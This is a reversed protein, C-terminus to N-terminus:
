KVYARFRIRQGFFDDDFEEQATFGVKELLKAAWESDVRSYAFIRDKSYKKKAYEVMSDLTEVAYGKGRYADMLMMSIKIERKSNLKLSVTGILKNESKLVIGYRHPFHGMQYHAQISEIDAKVESPDDYCENPFKDCWKSQSLEYLADADEMALRRIALHKTTYLMINQQM